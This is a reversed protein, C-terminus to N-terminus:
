INYIKRFPKDLFILAGEFEKEGSGRLFYIGAIRIKEGRRSV